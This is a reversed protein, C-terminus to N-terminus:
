KKIFNKLEMAAATINDKGFISSGAVFVNCGADSISKINKKDIGGDVEILFNYGKEKRIKSLEEIKKLSSQIFKQGGFGPNVSMVLVLDVFELIEILSSVPTSPNISVGANAGLEKIWNITRKLHIVEEQHVTIYNSGADIFNKILQDPNKIMLHTDIPLKTIKRVAEVVLPGFTINPVFKGDMIDCHIWDAGGLEVCRIQQALNSFDAALLSPAILKKETM